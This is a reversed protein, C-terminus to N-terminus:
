STMGNDYVIQVRRNQPEKVGDATPVLLDKKGKAVIEIESSPIGDKELQSAVSEARRRSLRMNYADSGVTDTHGTVTLQTVKMPAANKAATDVISVAQPTLDSKNFDFFVLYSKPAPAPAVAPPPTYPASAVPAADGAGFKVSTKFYLYRGVYDYGNPSSNTALDNLFPPNKDILNDVGVIFTANEYNYTFAIDSYFVGPANNGL